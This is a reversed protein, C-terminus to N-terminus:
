NREVYDIVNNTTTQPPRRWRLPSLLMITNGKGSLVVMGKWNLMEPDNPDPVSLITEEIAPKAGDVGPIQDLKRLMALRSAPTVM